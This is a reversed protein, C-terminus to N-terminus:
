FATSYFFVSLQILVFILLVQPLVAEPRKIHHTPTNFLCILSRFIHMAFPALTSRAKPAVSIAHRNGTQVIALVISAFTCPIFEPSRRPILEPSKRPILEPSRRPMLEPSKRPILEPSRRPMLEPSKRPILEPSRRPMLEPSKRPILEPSRRPMLEPSKRPILEPSRRPMLEPSKRPIM